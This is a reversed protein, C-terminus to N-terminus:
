IYSHFQDLAKSKKLLNKDINIQFVLDKPYWTIPIISLLDLQDMSIEQNILKDM